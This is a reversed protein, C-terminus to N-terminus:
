EAVSVNATATTPADIKLCPTIPLAHNTKTM